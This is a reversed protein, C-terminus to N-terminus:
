DIEYGIATVYVNGATTTILLDADDEGSALPTQFNTSVGGNAAFEFKAVPSDGGALDEELTVASAASINIILDTVVFKKGSAPSWIIGDTVAGAYTYYKRVPTYNIVDRKVAGIINTGAPTAGATSAAIADLVANDTAGLNVDGIVTGSAFKALLAALTTQTAFDKAAITDLVANDVASLEATVTGSTVTVDNNAGLDATVSGTVTVDNNAGLNVVLGGATELATKIAASNTETIAGSTVTVDNNAGLDVTLSGSVPLPTARIQTDTLPAVETGTSTTIQVNQIEKGGSTTTKITKGSGETVAIDAWVPTAILLLILILIRKM